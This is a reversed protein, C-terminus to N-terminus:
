LSAEEPSQTRNGEHDVPLFRIGNGEALSRRLCVEASRLRGEYFTTSIFENVEPRMRYTQELFLGMGAQVTEDPGLLHQLVSANAGPPHAGQSVQALQNPDGLLVVNRASTGVALVDALSVQGAEDVFLTDVSQDERSFLFSTGAM